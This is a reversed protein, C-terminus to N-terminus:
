CGLSRALVQPQTLGSGAHTHTNIEGTLVAEVNAKTVNDTANFIGEEIHNLNTANLAPAVKNVWVTKVYPM